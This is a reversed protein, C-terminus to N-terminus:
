QHGLDAGGVFGAEGLEEVLAKVLAGRWLGIRCCRGFFIFGASKISAAAERPTLPRERGCRPHLPEFHCIYVTSLLFIHWRWTGGEFRFQFIFIDVHWPGTRSCGKLAM